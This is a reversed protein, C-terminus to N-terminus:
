IVRCLNLSLLFQGDLLSPLFKVKPQIQIALPNKRPIRSSLLVAPSFISGIQKQISNQQNIQAPLGVLLNNANMQFHLIPDACSLLQRYTISSSGDALSSQQSRSVKLTICLSSYWFELAHESWYGDSLDILNMWYINKIEFCFLCVSKPCRAIPSFKTLNRDLPCTQPLLQWHGEVISLTNTHEWIAILQFVAFSLATYNWGRIRATNAITSSQFLSHIPDELRDLISCHCSMDPKTTRMGSGTKCNFFSLRWSLMTAHQIYGAGPIQCSTYGADLHLHATTQPLGYHDAVPTRGDSM